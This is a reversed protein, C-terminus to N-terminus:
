ARPFEVVFVAGRPENDEVRIEGGFNEVLTAVVHLGGRGTDDPRPDFLTGKTEEPVGPGNDLVRVVVHQPDLDVDVHVRPDAADNHEVGNEVLNSVITRVADNGYISASEPSDVTISAALMEDQNGVVSRAIEAVDIPEYDPDDSLTEAISSTSDIVDLVEDVQRDITRASEAILEDGPDADTIARARGRVVTMDNKIDHRLVSNTFSLTSMAKSARSAREMSTAYFYGAAFGAVSGSTAGILLQFTPESIPRGERARVLIGIGIVAVVVSAGGVTALFVRWDNEATFDQNSLYLGGGVLSLAPLGDLAFAVLPGSAGGIRSLETLHHTTAVVFLGLGFIAVFLPGSDYATASDM